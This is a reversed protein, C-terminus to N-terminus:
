GALREARQQVEARARDADVGRCHGDAVVHRGAVWVDSVLRSSASWLLHSIIEEDSIVPVFAPDDMRVHVVDAWRGAELVGIDDRGLAEAGGRTALTIAQRATMAAADLTRVRQLLPALRMEEWMDLDNNSAPGDTALGVRIGANLLDTIRAMGSGLKMNSQPCHAVAVDHRRYIEIDDDSLWVSHAALVRAPDFFGVDALLAPVSKGHEAELEAGEGQSEAVHIHALLDHEKAAQGVAALCELPLTYAAHAAVGVEVRENHTEMETAFAIAGELQEQWTGLAELGPGVLVPATVIVRSGADTVARAVERAHFYMECTTTVGFRLLEEAAMAMGWYVDEPVIKGERPWLIEKLWRVLPLDDGAGRLLTMPSHCHTNVLGPMLLGPLAQVVVDDDGVPAGDIPGLYAIRGDEGVDVCGPRHIRFEADCTVVTDATLRVTM